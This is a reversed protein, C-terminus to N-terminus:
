FPQFIMVRDRTVNTRASLPIAPLCAALTHPRFAHSSVTHHPVNM